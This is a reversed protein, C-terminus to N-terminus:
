SGVLTITPTKVIRRVLLEESGCQKHAYRLFIITGGGVIVHSICSTIRDTRKAGGLLLKTRLM